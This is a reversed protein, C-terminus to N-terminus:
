THIDTRGDITAKMGDVGGVAQTGASSWMREGEDLSNGATGSEAALYELLSLKHSFM